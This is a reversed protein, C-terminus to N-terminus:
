PANTRLAVRNLITVGNHSVVVTIRKAGTEAGSTQMLNASTVWEVVVKRQWGTLNPLVNGSQDQPPSEVWGNYDDVDNFNARTAPSTAEGADVGLPSATAGPQMYSQPVIESIMATALFAATSREATRRQALMSSTSAQSAALLLLGVLFSSVVAELMSFAARRRSRQSRRRQRNM